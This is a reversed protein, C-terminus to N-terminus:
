RKRKNGFSNNNKKNEPEIAKPAERSPINMGKQEMVKRVAEIEGRVVALESAEIGDGNGYGLWFAQVKSSKRRQKQAVYLQTERRALSNHEASLQDKTFKEYKVSSVYTGTIESPNTALNMCSCMLVILPLILVVKIM